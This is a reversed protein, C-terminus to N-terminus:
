NTKKLNPDSHNSGSSGKLHLVKAHPFYVTKWGALKSRYCFDIDEAYMFFREDLYGIQKVVLARIFMSAGSVADVQHTTDFDKWTQHYGSLLKINPFTQELKIFYALSNAPTPFGRHCSLDIAGDSLVLKPTLIGVRPNNDLYQLCKELTNPFIKTDSNLLLFYKGKAKKLGHNNGAAFGLNKQLSVLKINTLSKLYDLSGDTSANDVVIIEHSINTKISKIAQKVLKKTNYNLIIISLKPRM